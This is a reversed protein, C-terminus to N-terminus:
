IENDFLSLVCKYVLLNETFGGTLNNIRLYDPIKHKLKVYAEPVIVDDLPNFVVEEEVHIRKADDRDNEVVRNSETLGYLKRLSEIKDAIVSESENLLSFVINEFDELYDNYEMISSFDKERRYYANQLQQRLKCEREVEIDEFTQSTYNTKRLTMGCEPCPAQSHTFLRTLCANCMKHYCPSIYIKISPNLYSNSKCLPCALETM